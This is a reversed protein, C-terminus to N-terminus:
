LSQLRTPRKLEGTAPPDIAHHRIEPNSHDAGHKGRVHHDRRRPRLIIGRPRDGDHNAIRGTRGAIQESAGHGFPEAGGPPLGDNDIVFRTHAAIDRRGVDCARRTVAVRQHDAGVGHHGAVDEEVPVRREIRNFVEGRDGIRAGVDDAERDMELQGDIRDRLQDGIGLCVGALQLIARGPNARGM